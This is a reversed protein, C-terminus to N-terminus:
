FIETHIINRMPDVIDECGLLAGKEKALDISAKQSIDRLFNALQESNEASAAMIMSGQQRLCNVLNIARLSILRFSNRKDLDHINDLFRIAIRILDKFYEWDFEGDFICSCLDISGCAALGHGLLNNSDVGINKMIKEGPLFEKDYIVSVFFAMLRYQTSEEIEVSAAYNAIKTAIQSWEDNLSM